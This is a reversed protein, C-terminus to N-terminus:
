PDDRHRGPLLKGLSEDFAPLPLDIFRCVKRGVSDVAKTQLDCQFRRSLVADSGHAPIFATLSGALFPPRDGRAAVPSCEHRPSCAHHLPQESSANLSVFQRYGPQDGLDIISVASDAGGQRPSTRRVFTPTACGVLSVVNNTRRVTQTKCVGASPDDFRVLGRGCRPLHRRQYVNGQGSRHVFRHGEAFCLILSCLCLEGACRDISLTPQPLMRRGTPTTM